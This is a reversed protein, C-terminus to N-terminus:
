EHTIKWNIFPSNIWHFSKVTYIGIYNQVARKMFSYSNPHLLLLTKDHKAIILTQDNELPVSTKGDAGVMPQTRNDKHINIMIQSSGAVVLPRDSLTHPHM